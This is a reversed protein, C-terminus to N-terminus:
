KKRKKIVFVVGTAAVVALVCVIVVINTYDVTKKALLGLVTSELSIEETCAEDSFYKGCHTCHWYENNGAVTTTSEVAAVHELRDGAHTCTLKIVEDFQPLWKENAFDRARLVIEDEYIYMIWSHPIVVYSRASSKLSSLNIEWFSGVGDVEVLYPDIIGFTSHMHGCFYFVNDYSALLARLQADQKGVSNSNIVIESDYSLPVTNEFAYHSVVFIPMRDTEWKDLVEKMWELSDERIHLSHRIPDVKNGEISYEGNEDLVLASNGTQTLYDTNIVLYHYGQASIAYSASQLIGNDDVIYSTHDVTISGDDIGSQMRTMVSEWYIPVATQYNADEEKWYADHNGLTNVFLTNQMKYVDMLNYLYKYASSVTDDDPKDAFDGASILVDLQIGLKYVQHLVSNLNQQTGSAGLHIDSLLLTTLLADQEPASLFAEYSAVLADYLNGLSMFEDPGISAAQKLTDETDALLDAKYPEYESGLKAVHNRIQNALADMRVKYYEAQADVYNLAGRYVVIDDIYANGLGYQGLADAGFVLKNVGLAEDAYNAIQCTTIMEGDVYVSYAGNRDYSVTVYHWRDDQAQWIGDTDHHVGDATTLGTSVYKYHTLQLFSMGATDLKTDQNSFITGGMSYASMDVQHGATTAHVARAWIENGGNETMYWFSVTFDDRTIDCGSGSLDFTLYNNAAEGFDNVIYLATGGDVGTAFGGTAFSSTYDNNTPTVTVGTGSSLTYENEFDISFIVDHSTYIPEELKVEDNSEITYDELKVDPNRSPRIRLISDTASLVLNTPVVGSCTAESQGTVVLKDFISLDVGVTGVYDHIALVSKNKQVPSTYDEPISDGGFLNVIDFGKGSISTGDYSLYNLTNPVRTNTDPLYLADWYGMTEPVNQVDAGINITVSQGYHVSSNYGTMQKLSGGLLNIVLHGISLGEKNPTNAIKTLTGGLLTATLNGADGQNGGTVLLRLETTGGIIVEADGTCTGLTNTGMFISDYTGSLVTMKYDRAEEPDTAPHADCTFLKLTGSSTIGEGMLMDAGCYLYVTGSRGVMTIDHIHTKAGFYVSVKSPYDIMAGNTEAYNVGNWLSTINVTGTIGYQELDTNETIKTLGCVVVTGGADKDLLAYAEPLTQVATEASLGDGSVAASGNVFVAAENEAFVTSLLAGPLLALVLALALLM